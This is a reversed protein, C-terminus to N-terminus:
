ASALPPWRDMDAFPVDRLWGLAFEMDRARIEVATLGIPEMPVEKHGMSPTVAVMYGHSALYEWLVVNELSHMDDGLSYVVVPHRGEAPTASGVAAVPTGPPTTLRADAGTRPARCICLDSWLGDLDLERRQRVAPTIPGDTENLALYDQLVMSGASSTSAPYWVHVTVLRVDSTGTAGVRAGFTRTPDFVRTVRHGVSHPGPRLDGWLSPSARQPSAQVASLEAQGSAALAAVVIVLVARLGM